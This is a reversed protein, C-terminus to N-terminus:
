ATYFAKNKAIKKVDIQNVNVLFLAIQNAFIM